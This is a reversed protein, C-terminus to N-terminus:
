ARLRSTGVIGGVVCREVMFLPYIGGNKQWRVWEKRSGKRSMEVGLMDSMAEVAESMVRNSMSPLGTASPNSASSIGLLGRELCARGYVWRRGWSSM